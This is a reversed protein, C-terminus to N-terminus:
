SIPPPQSMSAGCMSFAGKRGRAVRRAVVQSSAGAGRGPAPRGCARGPLGGGDCSGRDDRRQMGGPLPAVVTRCRSPARGRRRAVGQAAHGTVRCRTPRVARSLLSEVIYSKRNTAGNRCSGHLTPGTVVLGPSAAGRAGGPGVSPAYLVSQSGRRHPQAATVGEGDGRRRGSEGARASPPLDDTSPGALTSAAGRRGLRSGLRSRDFLLQSSSARV